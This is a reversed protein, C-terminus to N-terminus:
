ARKRETVDILVIFQAPRGDLDIPSDFCELDRVEGSALRHTFSLYARGQRHARQRELSVEEQTMTNLQSMSMGIMREQAYGYLMSAAQNAAMIQRPGPEILLMPLGNEEFFKRFRTESEALALATRKRETIDEVHAVLHRPIGDGDRVLTVRVRVWITSGDRCGYRKEWEGTDQGERQHQELVRQTSAVEEELTLDMWTMTLLEERSYGVMECFAANVLIYRGDLGVDCV